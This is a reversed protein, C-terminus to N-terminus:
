KNPWYEIDDINEENMKDIDDKYPPSVMLDCDNCFTYRYGNSVTFRANPVFTSIADVVANFVDSAVKRAYTEDLGDRVLLRTSPSLNNDTEHFATQNFIEELLMPIYEGCDYNYMIGANTLPKNYSISLSIYERFRQKILGVPEMLSIVITLKNDM